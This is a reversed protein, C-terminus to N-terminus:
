LSRGTKRSLEVRYRTELLTKPTVNLLNAVDLLAHVQIRQVGLEWRAVTVRNVAPNVRDGLEAQTWGRRQRALAISEGIDVYVAEIKM